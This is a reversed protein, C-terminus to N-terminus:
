SAANGEVLWSIGKGMELVGEATSSPQGIQLRCEDQSILPV